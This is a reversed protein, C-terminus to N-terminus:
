QLQGRLGLRKGLSGSSLKVSTDVECSDALAGDGDATGGVAGCVLMIKLVVCDEDLREDGAVLKPSGAVIVSTVVTDTGLSSGLNEVKTVKVQWHPQGPLGQEACASQPLNVTLPIVVESTM